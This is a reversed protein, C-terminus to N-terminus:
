GNDTRIPEPIGDVLFLERLVDMVDEHQIRCTIKLRVCGRTYEDIIVLWQLSSGGRTKEFVFDWAWM